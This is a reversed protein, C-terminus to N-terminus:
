IDKVPRGFLAVLQGQQVRAGWAQSALIGDFSAKVEFPPEDIRHFDHLLAVTQGARVDAGCEVLPEYHGPWPAHVYCGPESMTIVRQTGDAHHGFPQIKGRVLGEHIAAALVGHRACAVGFPNVAAGWGFEGGFAIKGLRHAESTLLGPTDDQFSWYNILPTGTWRCIEFIRRDLEKNATQRFSTWIASRAVFGGAHLDIVVHVRPWLYQRVFDAIRYTIGGLPAKGAGAIFARNLNVGDEGVSDRTGTAFAAVNLVPVLIIRGLVDQPRIEGLLHKLAMPGEYECGHTSGFAVLGRDPKAEPGVMVTLPILHDGWLSDHELAVWYDRRGPSDLDLKNPSTIVRTM